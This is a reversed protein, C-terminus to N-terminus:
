RGIYPYSHQLKEYVVFFIINWPGMRAFAPFFGKYLAVVGETRATHLGCRISSTHYSNPPMTEGYSSQVPLGRISRLTKRQVMMRTRVVDVPNSAICASLGALVSAAMHCAAGDPVGHALMQSKTADYVPLQVGAVLAARQATPLGGRWLGRIGEHRLVVKGVSLLSWSINAGKHMNGSQMRVKIVDTPTALTASVSGAVVACCLNVLTSEKQPQRVLRKAVDKSSYYLGFKITGYVSQRVLAPSLGRYISTLGEERGITILTHVIGKYRLSSWRSDGVQGQLQQRTKATDLPFTAMEAAVAAMGGCLYPRIQAIGNRQSPNVSSMPSVGAMRSAQKTSIKEKENKQVRRELM